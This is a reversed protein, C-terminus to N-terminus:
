TTASAEARISVILSEFAEFKTLFATAGAKRMEKVIREDDYFSLGIIRIQSEESMIQRTAEVGDMEPMNVDMLIVDPSLKRSLKIAEKGDSAEGVVMMDDEDDIIKRIGKRFMQHDDVLLVKVMYDESRREAPKVPEARTIKGDKDTVEKEEALPVSLTVKTGKGVVSDIDVSGGILDIRERVNFLGFGGEKGPALVMKESDFGKGEDKVVVQLQDEKRKLTVVAEKESTHKVVNFLLERLSQLVIARVEEDLPKPQEDDDVTVTLGRKEVKGIVWDISGRLDGEMSPPPKLDSMLERTYTIADDIVERLQRFDKSARESYYDNELQILKMKSVALLQGLNDHLETAIQQRQEEEAGSLQSALSRLQDQYSLLAATREKVREELTENVAKLEEQAKRRETLDVGQMFVGSISGNPRHIPQYVFDIYRKEAGGQGTDPQRQILVEMDTGTFSKGTEYVQDLLDIFGQEVSEPIAERVPKGIIERDGILQQFLKNVREIVHDPGRMIAMFSPAHQFVDLMQKREAKVQRLLKEREEQAQKRETINKFFVAIKREEPEGIRFTSVEFWRELKEIYSEFNDPEGTLAVEGYRRFWEEQLDPLVDSVHKGEIDELGTQKQFASNVELYRYDVPNKSNDFELKLICFGDDMKEFLTRYKEESRRRAAENERLRMETEKQDTIDMLLNIGGIIKGEENRLPSTFARFWIREGDPRELIAEVGDLSREEQLAIAVPSEVLPMSKGDPYYLKWSICWRDTGIEPERGSLKVAASNYYQLRGEADTVYIATPLSDFIRKKTDEELFVEILNKYM